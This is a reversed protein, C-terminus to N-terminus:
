LCGKLTSLYSACRFTCFTSKELDFGAQKAGNIVVEVPTAEDDKAKRVFSDPYGENLDVPLKGPPQFAPLGAHFGMIVTQAAMSMAWISLAMQLTAQATGSSSGYLYAGGVTDSEKTWYSIVRPATIPIFEHQDDSLWADIFFHDPPAM